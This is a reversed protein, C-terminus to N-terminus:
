STQVLALQLNSEVEVSLPTPTSTSTLKRTKSSKDWMQFISVDKKKMMTKNGKKKM